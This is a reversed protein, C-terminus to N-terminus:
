RSSPDWRMFLTLAKLAADAATRTRHVCRRSRCGVVRQECPLEEQSGVSCREVEELEQWRESDIGTLDPPTLSVHSPPPPGIEGGIPGGGGGHGRKAEEM